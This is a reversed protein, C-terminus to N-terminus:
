KPMNNQRFFWYFIPDNIEKEIPNVIQWSFCKRRNSNFLVSSMYSFYCSSGIYSITKLLFTLFVLLLIIKIFFLFWKWFWSSSSSASSSSLDDNSNSKNNNNNSNNYYKIMNHHNTKEFKDHDFFEDSDEDSDDEYSNDEEYHNSKDSVIGNRTLIPYKIHDENIQTSPYFGNETFL